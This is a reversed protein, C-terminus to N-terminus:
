NFGFQSALNQVDKSNLNKISKGNVKINQIDKADINKLSKGNISANNILDQANKNLGSKKLLEAAQKKAVEVGIDGMSKKLESSDVGISLNNIDGSIIASLNIESIQQKVNAFSVDVNYLNLKLPINLSINNVGSFEWIGDGSIGVKKANLTIGQTSLGSIINGDLNKVDFKVTNKISNQNSIVLDISADDNNVSKISISTPKNLLTPNSSLNTLVADYTDGTNKDQYNLVQLNGITFDPTNDRLTDDKVNAYGYVSANENVTQTQKDKNDNTQAEKSSNLSSLVQMGQKINKAIEASKKANKSLKSIDIQQMNAGVKAINAIAQNNITNSIDDSSGDTSVILYNEQMQDKIIM